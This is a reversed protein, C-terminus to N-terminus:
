RKRLRRHSRCNISLTDQIPISDPPSLTSSM